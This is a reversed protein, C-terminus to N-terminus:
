ALPLPGVTLGPAGAIEDDIGPLVDVHEGGVVRHAMALRVAGLMNAHGHRRALVDTRRHLRHRVRRVVEVGALAAANGASAGGRIM